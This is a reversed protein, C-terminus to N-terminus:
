ERIIEGFFEFTAKASNLVEQKINEDYFHQEVIQQFNRWRGLILSADNGFFSHEKISSLNPCKKLHKSILLGGLASGESVYLAGLAANESNIEFHNPQNNQTDVDYDLRKLDEKLRQTKDMDLFPHLSSRILHTNRILAQEITHYFKFNQILLKKYNDISIAHDIIEKALNDKEVQQHIRNTKEKLYPLIM